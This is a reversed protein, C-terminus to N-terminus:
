DKDLTLNQSTEDVNKAIEPAPMWIDKNLVFKFQQPKSLDIKSTPVSLIYINNPRKTMLFEANNPNWDNFSGAVSVSGIDGKHRNLFDIPLKYEFLINSKKIRYGYVVKQVKKAVRKDTFGSSKVFELDNPTIYGSQLVFQRIKENSALDLELLNRIALQKDDTKEFYSKCITYGIFYGLDQIQRGSFSKSGYLWGLFGNNIVFMETKFAKWVKDENQSGFTLHTSFGNVALEKEFFVESLFEAVGENITQTLLQGNGDKQQLHIFEHIVAPIAWESNASALVEAGLLLNNTQKNPSGGVTGCGIIFYISGDKCAPYMQKIKALKAQITPIQTSVNEIFPRMKTLYGRNYTIYNLWKSPNGGGLAIFDKLGDSARDIYLKQLITLQKATDPQKNISDFAAFFNTVDQTYVKTQGFSSNSLLLTLCLILRRM